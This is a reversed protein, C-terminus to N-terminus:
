KDERLGGYRRDRNQYDYVARSLVEIDFDPWYVDTFWIEAYSNQWLLFNSLRKEGGTRIMLDPDPIGASYLHADMVADDIDEIALRGDQVETCIKQVAQIIDARGGYNIAINLGLVENGATQEIAKVACAKPGAPLGDVDGLIRVCVGKEDLEDIEKNFYEVMLKMLGGVEDQPRKWNETSFAYLTVYRINLDVCAQVIRRVGEMGQRHGYLRPMGRKKAWRGNGDMIVSIHTPMNNYDLMESYKM